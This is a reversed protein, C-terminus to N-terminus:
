PPHFLSKHEKAPGPGTLMSRDTLTGKSSIVDFTFDDDKFEGVIFADARAATFQSVLDTPFDAALLQFENRRLEFRKLVQSNAIGATRALLVDDRGCLWSLRDFFIQRSRPQRSM